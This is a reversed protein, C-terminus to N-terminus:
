DLVVNRIIRPSAGQVSVLFIGKPIYRRLDCVSGSMAFREIIKGDLRYLTIEMPKERADVVRLITGRLSFAPSIKQPLIERSTRVASKSTFVLLSLGQRPLSFTETYVDGSYDITKVPNLEALEAAAHLEDWQTDSPRGPKGQDEWVKYANSHTEDVRYHRVEVEGEPLPLNSVTLNVNDVATQGALSTYFNYVMVAAQSNDDNVTAFGDVGDADGTGGSLSLRTTGMMHLMKFGNFTAKRVGQYNILGFVQGFPVFNHNEM